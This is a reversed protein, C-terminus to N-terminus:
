MGRTFDLSISKLTNPDLGEWDNRCSKELLILHVIWDRLKWQALIEHASPTCWLLRLKEIFPKTNDELTQVLFLAVRELSGITASELLARATESGKGM